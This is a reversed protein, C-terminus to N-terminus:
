ELDAQFFLDLLDLLNPPDLLDLPLWLLWLLSRLLSLLFQAMQDLLMVLNDLLDLQSTWHFCMDLSYPTELPCALFMVLNYMSLPHPLWLLSRLLNLLFQVMQDLLM